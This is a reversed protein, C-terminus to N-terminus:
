KDDHNLNKQLQYMSYYFRLIFVILITIVNYTVMMLFGLGYYALNLVLLVIYNIIVAWQWSELRLRSILEDEHPHKAFCIMLLGIIIGMFALENTLNDEAPGLIAPPAQFGPINLDYYQNAIALAFFILFTIWGIVKFRSSILFHNKM